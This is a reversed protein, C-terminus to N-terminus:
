RKKFKLLWRATKILLIVILGWFACLITAVVPLVVTLTLGGLVDNIQLSRFFLVLFLLGPGTFTGAVLHDINSVLPLKRYAKRSIFYALRAMVISAVPVFLVAGYALVAMFVVFAGGGGEPYAEEIQAGIDYFVM